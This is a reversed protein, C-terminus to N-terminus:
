SEMVVMAIAFEATHTLSLSIARVGLQDAVRRAHGSLELGPRGTASRAVEIEKWTVGFNMGTGLAKSGAEKAAFRAAFSQASNRKGGCYAIERPTYIRDLFRPGFREMSQAIRKIEILDVGTGLLMNEVTGRSDGAGALHSWLSQRGYRSPAEDGM